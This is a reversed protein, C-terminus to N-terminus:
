FRAIKSDSRIQRSLRRMGRKAQKESTYVGCRVSYSAKESDPSAVYFCNKQSLEAKGALNQADIKSPVHGIEITFAAETAKKEASVLRRRTDAALVATSPTSGISNYFVGKPAVLDEKKTVQSSKPALSAWATVLLFFSFVFVVWALGLRKLKQRRTM